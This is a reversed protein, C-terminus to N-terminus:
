NFLETLDTCHKQVWNVNVEVYKRNNHSYFIKRNTKLHDELVNLLGKVQEEASQKLYFNYWRAGGLIKGTPSQGLGVKIVGNLKKTKNM